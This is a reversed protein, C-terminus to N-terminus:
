AARSWGTESDFVMVSGDQLLVYSPTVHAFLDARISTEDRHGRDKEASLLNVYGALRSLGPDKADAIAQTREDFWDVLDELSLAHELYRTIQGKADNKLSM